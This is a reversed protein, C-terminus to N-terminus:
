CIKKQYNILKHQQHGECPRCSWHVYFLGMIDFICWWIERYTQDKCKQRWLWQQDMHQFSHEINTDRLLSSLQLRRNLNKQTELVM